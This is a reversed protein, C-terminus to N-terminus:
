IEPNVSWTSGEHKEAYACLTYSARSGHNTETSDHMAKLEKAWGIAALRGAPTGPFLREKQYYSKGPGWFKYLRAVLVSEGNVAARQLPAQQFHRDIVADVQKRLSDALRKLPASISINIAM